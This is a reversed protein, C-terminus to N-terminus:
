FFFNTVIKMKNLYRPWNELHLPFILSCENNRCMDRWSGIIIDSMMFAFGVILVRNLQQSFLEFLNCSFEGVNISESHTKMISLSCVYSHGVM